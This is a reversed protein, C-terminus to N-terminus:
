NRSRKKLWLRTSKNLKQWQVANTWKYIGKSSNNCIESVAFSKQYFDYLDEHLRAAKQEKFPIVKELLACTFTWKLQLYTWKELLQEVNKLM